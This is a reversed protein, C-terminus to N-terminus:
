DDSCESISTKMKRIYISEKSSEGGTDPGSIADSILYRNWYHPPEIHITDTSLRAEDLWRDLEETPGLDGEYLRHIEIVWQYPCGTTGPGFAIADPTMLLYETGAIVTFATLAIM